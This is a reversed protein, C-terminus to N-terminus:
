QLKYPAVQNVERALRIGCQRYVDEEVERAFADIEEGTANGLNVIILAQKPYVQVNGKRKGRWGCQEIIWGAPVKKMGRATDYAPASPFRDQLHAFEETTLEPNKFFSGASGLEGILPLKEYRIKLVAERVRQPTLEGGGNLLEPLRGYSTLPSPHKGLTFEAALIIMRGAFERKFKSWRYGLDLDEANFWIEQHEALNYTNVRRLTDSCSAGYAGINQVPSAGVSGPIGSLNELGWWGQDCSYAVLEDWSKGAGVRLTVYEDDESIVELSVNSPHLIVGDFDRTFLVNSGGGIIYYGLSEEKIRSAWLTADAVNRIEAITDAYAEVHFTNLIAAKSTKMRNFAIRNIVFFAAAALLGSCSEKM